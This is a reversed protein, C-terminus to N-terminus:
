PSPGYLTMTQQGVPLPGTTWLLPMPQPAAATTGVELWCAHMSRALAAGDREDCGTTLGCGEQLTIATSDDNTIVAVGAPVHAAVTVLNPWLAPDPHPATDFDWYGVLSTGGLVAIAVVCVAAGGPRRPKEVASRVAYAGLLILPLTVLVSFRWTDLSHAAEFDGFPYPSLIATLGVIWAGYFLLPRWKRDRALVAAGLVALMTIWRPLILADVFFWANSVLNARMNEQWSGFGPRPQAIFHDAARPGAAGSGM